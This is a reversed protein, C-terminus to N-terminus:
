EQVNQVAQKRFLYKIRYGSCLIIMSYSFVDLLGYNATYVFYVFFIFIVAVHFELELAPLVTDKIFEIMREKNM